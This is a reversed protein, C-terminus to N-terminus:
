KGYEGRSGGTMIEMMKCWKLVRRMGQRMGGIM